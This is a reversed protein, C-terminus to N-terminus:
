KKYFSMRQYSDILAIAICNFVIVVPIGIIAGVFGFARQCALIGFIMLIPNAGISQSMIRPTVFLLDCVQGTAFAVFVKLMCISALGFQQIALLNVILFMLMFGLYPVISLIGTAIGLALGYKIPSVYLFLGYICSLYLCVILQGRIYGYMKVDLNRAIGLFSKLYSRPVLMKISRMIKDWDCIFYYMLIPVFMAMFIGMSGRFFSSTLHKKFMSVQADVSNLVNAFMSMLSELSDNSIDPSKQKIFKAMGDNIITKISEADFGSAIKIVKKTLFPLSFVAFAIITACVGLSLVSASVSKNIGSKDMKKKLPRLLYAFAFSFVFPTLIDSFYCLAVIPILWIM